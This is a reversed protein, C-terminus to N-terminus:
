KNEGKNYTKEEIFEYEKVWFNIGKKKYNKIAKEIDPKNYATYLGTRGDEMESYLLYVRDNCDLRKSKEQKTENFIDIVDNTLTTPLVRVGLGKDDPDFITKFTKFYNVLKEKLNTEEKPIEDNKEEKLLYISQIPEQTQKEAEILNQEEFYSTMSNVGGKKLYSYYENFQAVTYNENCRRYPASLYTLMKVMIILQSYSYNKYNDDLFMGNCFHKAIAILNYTSSRKLEFENEALEEISNYGLKEYYKLNNAEYLRFGIKVFTKKIDQMELKVMKVFSEEETGKLAMELTLENM